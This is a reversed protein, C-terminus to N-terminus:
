QPLLVDFQSSIALHEELPLIVLPRSTFRPFLFPQLFPHTAGALGRFVSTVSQAQECSRRFPCIRSKREDFLRTESSSACNCDFYLCSSLLCEASDSLELELMVKKSPLTLSSSASTLSDLLQFRLAVARLM